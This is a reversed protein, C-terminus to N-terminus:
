RQSHDLAWYKYLLYKTYKSLHRGVYLNVAHVRVTGTGTAVTNEKLQLRVPGLGCRPHPLSQVNRGHRDPLVEGDKLSFPHDVERILAPLDTPGRPYPSERGLGVISERVGVRFERDVQELRNLTRRPVFAQFTQGGLPRSPLHFAITRPHRALVPREFFADGSQRADSALFAIHGLALAEPLSLDLECFVVARDKLCCLEARLEAAALQREETLDETVTDGDLPDLVHRTAVASAGVSYEHLRALAPPFCFNKLSVNLCLTSSARRVSNM